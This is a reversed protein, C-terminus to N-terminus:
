AAEGRALAAARIAIDAFTCDPGLEAMARAMFEQGLDPLSNLVARAAKLAEVRNESQLDVENQTAAEPTGEVDAVYPSFHTYPVTYYQSQSKQSQPTDRTAGAGTGYPVQGTEYPVQGESAPTQPPVQDPPNEVASVVPAPAQPPVQNEDPDLMPVRDALDDPLTLRYEDAKGGARSAEFTREILGLGRLTDLARIVTRRGLGTVNVLKHIGPHARTGDTNAYTSLTLAVLKVSTHCKVRRIVRQWEFLSCPQAPM